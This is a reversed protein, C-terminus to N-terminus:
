KAKKPAVKKAAAKAKKPAAKVVKTPRGKAAKMPVVEAGAAVAPAGVGPAPFQRQERFPAMYAKPTLGAFKSVNAKKM